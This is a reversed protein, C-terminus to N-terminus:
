SHIALFFAVMAFASQAVVSFWFGVPHDYRSIRNGFKDFAEGTILGAVPFFLLMLGVLVFIVRIM